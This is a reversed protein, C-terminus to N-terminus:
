ESDTNRLPAVYRIMKWEIKFHSNFIEDGSFEAAVDHLM